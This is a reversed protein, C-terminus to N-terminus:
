LVWLDHYHADPMKNYKYYCVHSRLRDELQGAPVRHLECGRVAWQSNRLLETMNVQQSKNARLDLFLRIHSMRKARDLFPFMLHEGKADLCSLVSIFTRSAREKKACWELRLMHM